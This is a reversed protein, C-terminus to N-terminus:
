VQMSRPVAFGRGRRWWGSRGNLIPIERSLSSRGTTSLSFSPSRGPSAAITPKRRSVGTTEPWSVAKRLSPGGRKSTPQYTPMVIAPMSTCLDVSLDAFRSVMENSSGRLPIVHHRVPEINRLFVEFLRGSALDPDTHHEPENSGLWHDVTYFEIHKGSNIIEVAMFAASRGKWAGIEVFVAGGAAREVQMRYIETASFWM